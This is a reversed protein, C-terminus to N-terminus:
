KKSRNSPGMVQNLYNDYGIELIGLTIMTPLILAIGSVITILMFQSKSICNILDCRTYIFLLVSIVILFLNLVTTRVIRIRSRIYELFQTPDGFKSYVKARELDTTKRFKNIVWGSKLLFKKPDILTFVGNAIVDLVIGLTYWLGFLILILLNASKEAWTLLAIIWDVGIFSSILVAVWISSQMGAILNEIFITTTAMNYLDRCM